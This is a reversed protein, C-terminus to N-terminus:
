TMRTEAVVAAARTTTFRISRRLASRPAASEDAWGMETPSLHLGMGAAACQSKFNVSVWEIDNKSL